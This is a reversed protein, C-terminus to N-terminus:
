SVDIRDMSSRSWKTDIRDERYSDPSSRSWNTIELHLKFKIRDPIFIMRLFISTIKHILYFWDPQKIFFAPAKQLLLM